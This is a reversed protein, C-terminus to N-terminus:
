NAQLPEPEDLNALLKDTNTGFGILRARVIWGSVGSHGLVERSLM